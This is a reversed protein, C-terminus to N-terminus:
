KIKVKQGVVITGEAAAKRENALGKQFSASQEEAAAKRENALGLQFFNNQEKIAAKQDNTIRLGKKDNSISKQEKVQAFALTIMLLLYLPIISMKRLIVGNKVMKKNMMILRKKTLSYNLNSALYTSHNRFVLNLLTNQYDHLDHTSLVKDDALFEHNLQIGKRFLWLLPNFWLIIKVLEVILIDASHYQLCHVQEHIIVEKEIKGNEYESRNVFIYKFFTYPLTEKEILVIKTKRNNIM